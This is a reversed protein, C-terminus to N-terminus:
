IENPTRFDAAKDYSVEPPFPSSIEILNDTSSRVFHRAPLLEVDKIPLIRHYIDTNHIEHTVQERQINHVLPRVTEHTVAPALHTHRLTDTIGDLTIAASTPSRKTDEVTTNQHKESQGDQSDAQESNSHGVSTSAVPKRKIPPFGPEGRHSHNFFPVLGDLQEMHRRDFDEAQNLPSPSYQQRLQHTSSGTSRETQNLKSPSSINRDAVDESHNQRETSVPSYKSSEYDLVDIGRSPTHKSPVKGKTIDEGRSSQSHQTESRDNGGIPIHKSEKLRHTESDNLHPM